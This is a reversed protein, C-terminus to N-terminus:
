PQRSEDASGYPKQHSVLLQDIDQRLSKTRRVYESLYEVICLSPDPTYSLFELHSLHSGPKSTKLLKDLVFVCKDSSLQMCSVKLAHLTKRRQGSM